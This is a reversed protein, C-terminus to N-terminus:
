INTLTQINYAYFATCITNKNKEFFSRLKSKKELINSSLIIKVDEINKETGDAMKINREIPFSPCGTCTDLKDNDKYKKFECKLVPNRCQSVILVLNIPNEVTRRRLRFVRGRCYPM